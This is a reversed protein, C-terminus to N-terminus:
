DEEANELICLSQRVTQLRSETEELTKYMNRSHNQATTISQTLSEIERRLALVRKFVKDRNASFSMGKLGYAITQIYLFLGSPGTPIVRQEISTELLDSAGQLFGQYYIRESPIYMIAFDLTGEEPRIYKENIEQLQKIFVSRTKGSLAKEGSLIGQIAEKPFKSDIAVLRGGVHVVADARTGNRFSYQMSFAKKPLWNKLLTELMIEGSTGRLYPTSFIQTLEDIQAAVRDMPAAKNNRREIILLIGLIICLISAATAFLAAPTLQVDM